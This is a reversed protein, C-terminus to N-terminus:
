EQNDLLKQLIALKPNIEKEERCGCDGDRLKKGCKPCLGPCDPSCLSLTPLELSLESVIEGDPIIRADNVYMVDDTLGDWENDESLHTDRANKAPQGTLITREIDFEVTETIEDLCRACSTIFEASVHASFLLQGLSDYASGTVRIGNEPITVDDPLDVLDCDAHEPDFSYDFDLKSIRHNLLETVDIIM